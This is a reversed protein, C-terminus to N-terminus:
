PTCRLTGLDVIGADRDPAEVVLACTGGSWEVRADHRGASVGDLEFEGDRGIPSSVDGAARALTLEGYAPVDGAGVRLRGRVLFMRPATFRVVVGGRDPPAITRELTPMTRDFPIDHDNVAIRNGYYPLLSPVMLDGHRDTRGIEHNNVYGRVGAVGPVRLLAFSQQVPRTAFVRGGIFVVGGAVGVRAGLDGDVADISASYVGHPAQLDASARASAHEGVTASARYGFGDGAPASHQVSVSGQDSTGHRQYGAGGSTHRGLIMTLGVFGQVSPTAELEQAAGLTSTMFWHRGGRWSAALQARTSRGRDRWSAATLQLSLSTRHGVAM